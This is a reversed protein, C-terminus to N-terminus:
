GLSWSTLKVLEGSAAASQAFWKTAAYTTFNITNSGLTTGTTPTVSLTSGNGGSGTIYQTVYGANTTSYTYYSGIPITGSSPAAGVTLTYGAGTLATGTAVTQEPISLYYRGIGGTAEGTLLPTAQGTIVTGSVTAGGSLTMGIYITNTVATATLLNGSIGGTISASTQAAISSTAATITAVSSGAAMFMAKGSAFYAFAQYGPYVSGTGSNTVWIDGGTCLAVPFGSPITMAADLLYTTNLGQQQRHIIGTPSVGGAGGFGYAGVVYGGFTNAAFLPANDTDSPGAYSAWAFLGVTVGSPGAVLGGPGGTYFTRPNASAWDGAVAPTQAVNVQTQIGGSM